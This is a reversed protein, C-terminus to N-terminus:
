ARGIAHFVEQEVLGKFDTASAAPGNMSIGNRIFRIMIAVGIGDGREWLLVLKPRVSAAVIAFESITCGGEDFV